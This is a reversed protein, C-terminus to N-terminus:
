FPGDSTRPALYCLHLSVLAVPLTALLALWGIAALAVTVAWGLQGFTRVMELATGTIAAALVLAAALSAAGLLALPWGLRVPRLAATLANCLHLVALAWLLLGLPAGPRWPLVLAAWALGVASLGTWAVVWPRAWRPLVVRPERPM